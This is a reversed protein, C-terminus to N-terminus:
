KIGTSASLSVGFDNDSLVLLELILICLTSNYRLKTVVFIQHTVRIEIQIRNRQDRTYFIQIQMSARLRSIAQMQSEVRITMNMILIARCYPFSGFVRSVLCTLPLIHHSSFSIWRLTAPGYVLPAHLKASFPNAKWRCAPPRSAPPRQGDRITHWIFRLVFCFSSSPLVPSSLFFDDSNCHYKNELTECAGIIRFGRVRCFAAHRFKEVGTERERKRGMIM